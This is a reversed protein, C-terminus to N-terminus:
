LPLVWLSRDSFSADGESGWVRYKMTVTTSGPNLGIHLNTKTSSVWQFDDKFVTTLDRGNSEQTEASIVNAGTFATATVAGRQNGVPVSNSGDYQVTTFAVLLRGSPSIECTLSPGFTTLDGYSNSTRTQLSSITSVQAGSIVSPGFAGVRDLVYVDPGNVLVTVVDNVSPRYNSVHAVDPIATSDAGLAVSVRSTTNDVATITGQRLEVTPASVARDSERTIARATRDPDSSGTFAPTSM